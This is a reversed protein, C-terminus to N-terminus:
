RAISLVEGTTAHQFTNVSGNGLLAKLFDTMDDDNM